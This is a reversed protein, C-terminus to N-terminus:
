FSFTLGAGLFLSADTKLVGIRHGGSYTKYEQDGYGSVQAQVALNDTLRHRYALSVGLGEPRVASERGDIPSTPLRFDNLNYDLGLALTAQKNGFLDYSLELGLLSSLKWRDNIQWELGILPLIMADDELRTMYGAGLVFSLTDSMRYRTGLGASWTVGDRAEAESAYGTRLNGLALLSWQDQIEQEVRLSTQMEDVNEWGAPRAFDYWYRSAGAGWRIKTQPTIKHSVNVETSAKGIQLSNDATDKVDAETSGQYEGTLEIRWDSDASYLPATLTGALWALVYLRTSSKIFSATNM